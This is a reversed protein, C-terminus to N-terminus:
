AVHAHAAERELIADALIADALIADALIADALAAEAELVALEPVGTDWEVLAPLPGTKRLAAAFLDWVEQTVRSGHDDIRLSVAGIRNVHHGALHIEQAAHLPMEALWADADQGLNHASVAINNVDLLLGCGTRRILEAMFAGESMASHRFALYSSPNEILIQRGLADQTREINAAVVDLAEQTLPIPLLDNLYVGANGSWALHESVLAPQFREVVRVLRGLHAADIGAASGLSLGVGHISLPYRDAIRALWVLGPGGPAMYNEAHVEFWAIAPGRGLIEDFHQPKLGAGAKAPIPLRPIAEDPEM